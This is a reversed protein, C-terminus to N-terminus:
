PVTDAQMRELSTRVDPLDEGLMAEAKSVDLSLDRGRPADFDQAALRSPIVKGDLEFVEALKQGFEYKSTRENGALHLLGTTDMDILRCLLTALHGAYLPSFYADTFGPVSSGSRLTEIMWEALTQSDGRSWGFFNTRVVLADECVNQVIREAALKTQGYVNVPNPTDIETWKSDTGDFVADTSIYLLSADASSALTAVHETMTTNYHRAREPYRECQDVDTMAACHVVADFDYPNLAEFPPETLDCKVAEVGPRTIPTEHYTGVVRHNEAAEKLLYTGLFGSSGTVLITAM